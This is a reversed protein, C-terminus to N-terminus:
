GPCISLRCSGLICHIYCEYKDRLLVFNQGAKASLIHANRMRISALTVPDAPPRDLMPLYVVATDQVAKMLQNFPQDVDKGHRNETQEHFVRQLM